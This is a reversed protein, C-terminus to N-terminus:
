RCAMLLLYSDKFVCLSHQEINLQVFMRIQSEGTYVFLVNIEFNDFHDRQVGTNPETLIGIKTCATGGGRDMTWCKLVNWNKM